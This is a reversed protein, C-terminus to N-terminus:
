RCAEVRAVRLHLAKQANTARPAVAVIEEAEQREGFQLLVAVAASGGREECLEDREACARRLRHHNAPLRM